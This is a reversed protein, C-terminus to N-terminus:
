WAQDENVGGIESGQWCDLLGRGEDHRIRPVQNPGARYLIDGVETDLDEIAFGVQGEPAAEVGHAGIDPVAIAADSEEIRCVVLSVPYTWLEAKDCAHCRLRGALYINMLVLQGIATGHQHRRITDRRRVQSRNTSRDITIRQVTQHELDIHFGGSDEEAPARELM